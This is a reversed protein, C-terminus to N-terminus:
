PNPLGKNDSSRISQELADIRRDIWRGDHENPVEPGGDIGCLRELTEIEAVLDGWRSDNNRGSLLATQWRREHPNVNGSPRSTRVAIGWPGRRNPHGATGMAGARAASVLLVVTAVIAIAVLLGTM